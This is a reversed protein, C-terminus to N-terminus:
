IELHINRYSDELSLLVAATAAVYNSSCCPNNKPKRESPEEFRYDHDTM